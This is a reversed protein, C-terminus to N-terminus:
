AKESDDGLPGHLPPVRREIEQNIDEPWEAVATGLCGICVFPFVQSGIMAHLVPGSPAQM